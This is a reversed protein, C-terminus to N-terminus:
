DLITHIASHVLSVHQCTFGQQLYMMRMNGHHLFYAAVDWQEESNHLCVGENRM